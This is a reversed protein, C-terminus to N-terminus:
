KDNKEDKKETMNAFGRDLFKAEVAVHRFSKERYSCTLVSPSLPTAVQVCIRM